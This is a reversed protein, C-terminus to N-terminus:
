CHRQWALVLLCLCCSPNLSSNAPMMLICRRATRSLEQGSSNALFTSPLEISNYSPSTQFSPFRKRADRASSNFRMLILQHMKVSQLKPNPERPLPSPRAQPCLVFSGGLLKAGTREIPQCHENQRANNPEGDNWLPYQGKLEGTVLSRFKGDSFNTLDVWYREDLKLKNELARIEELSRLNVLNGGMKNCKTLATFYNVRESKEIYYLKSGIKQFHESDVKFDHPIGNAQSIQTNTGELKIVSSSVVQLLICCTLLLCIKFNM